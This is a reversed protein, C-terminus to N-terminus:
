LFKQGYLFILQLWLQQSASPEGWVDAAASVTKLFGQSGRAVGEVRVRM